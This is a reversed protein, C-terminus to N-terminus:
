TGRCAKEVSAAVVSELPLPAQTNALARRFQARAWETDSFWFMEEGADFKVSGLPGEQQGEQQPVAVARLQGALLAPEFTGPRVRILAPLAGYALSGSGDGNVSLRCGGYPMDFIVVAAPVDNAHAAIPFLLLLPWAPIKM